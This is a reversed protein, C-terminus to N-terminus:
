LGRFRGVLAWRNIKAKAARFLPSFRAAFPQEHKWSRWVLLTLAACGLAVLQEHSGFPIAWHLRTSVLSVMPTLDGRLFGLAFYGVAYTGGLCLFLTGTHQLRKKFALALLLLGFAFMAEYLQVPHVPLSVPADPSLGWHSVHNAWAPSGLYRDGASAQWRPFTGLAVLLPHAGPRLPRGFDCGDFYCGIRGLGIGLLMPISLQDLWRALAPQNHRVVVLTALLGGVFAGFGFLGGRQFNLMDALGSQGLDVFLWYGLRGGLLGGLLAACIKIATRERSVGDRGGSRLLWWCSIVIALSVGSGFASFQITFPTQSEARGAFLAALVVASAISGVALRKKEGILLGFAAVLLTVFLAVLLLLRPMASTFSIRLLSPVM